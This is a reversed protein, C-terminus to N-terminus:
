NPRGEIHVIRNPRVTARVEEGRGMPFAPHPSGCAHAPNLRRIAERRGREGQSLAPTLTRGFPSQEGFWELAADQVHSENLSM